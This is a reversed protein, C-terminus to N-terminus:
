HYKNVENMLIIMLLINLMYNQFMMKLGVLIKIIMNHIQNIPSIKKQCQFIVQVIKKM